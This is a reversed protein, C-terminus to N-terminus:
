ESDVAQSACFNQNVSAGFGSGRPVTTSHGSPSQYTAEADSERAIVLRQIAVQLGKHRHVVSDKSGNDSGEKSCQKM